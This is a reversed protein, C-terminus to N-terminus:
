NGGQRKLYEDSFYQFVQVRTNLQDVVYIKDTSDIDIGIPLSFGGPARKGNESVAYFAGLVLLLEGQQNFITINHARGDVVYINDSSDVAISKILQFSGASDGREGFKRVFNGNADFLQINAAFADAVILNGRSDLSMAVPLNFQGDGEGLGGISKVFTGQLDTIVVKRTAADSVYMLSNKKDIIMSTPSSVEVSKLSITRQYKELANFVLVSASRRELVYIFGNIDVAISLPLYLTPAGGPIELTRMEHTALDFVVIEGRTMDSVLFKNMEPLSKVEVPKLLSKPADQGAISDWFLQYPNKEIDLQSSYSKLWEIRAVDPPPPWFFRDTSKKQPASCAACFVCLLLVHIIKFM